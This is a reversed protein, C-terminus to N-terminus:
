PEELLWRIAEEETGERGHIADVPGRDVDAGADFNKGQLRKPTLCSFRWKEGYDSYVIEGYDSYVVRGKAKRPPSVRTAHTPCGPDTTM